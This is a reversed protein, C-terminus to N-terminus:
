NEEHKRCAICDAPNHHGTLLAPEGDATGESPLASYCMSAATEDASRLQLVMGAEADDGGANQATGEHTHTEITREPQEKDAANLEGPSTQIPTSRCIRPSM